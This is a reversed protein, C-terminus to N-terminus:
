DNRLRTHPSSPACVMGGVQYHFTRYDSPRRGSRFLRLHAKGPLARLARSFHAKRSCLLPGGVATCRARMTRNGPPCDADKRADFVLRPHAELEALPDAVTKHPLPAELSTLKSASLIRERVRPLTVAIPPAHLPLKRPRGIALGVFGQEFILFFLAEESELYNYLTEKSVSMEGAIDGMKAGRYGKAIFVGSAAKM